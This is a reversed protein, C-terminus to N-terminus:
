PASKRNLLEDIAEEAATYPDTRRKELNEMISDMRSDTQLHALAKQFLGDRLANLFSYKLDNQRMEHSRNRKIYEGHQEVASALEVVGTNAKAETKLIPPQWDTKDAARLLVLMRIDNVASDAGELDSKNVVFIAATELIGAKIAQIGDGLGPIIVVVNTHAIHSIEVEDQGAGVTEILIIDKGMADLVAVLDRTSRSVGGVHGRTAVSRIFVGNDLAHRQMRIRDGLIAGGTLTSSPDVALVGITKGEKRLIGILRDVITSKGTGPPGTIGIIHAHGTNPFLRKLTERASPHGDEIDRMLRAAARVDGKRVREETTM